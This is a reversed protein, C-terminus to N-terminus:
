SHSASNAAMISCLAANQAAIIAAQQAAIAMQASVAAAAGVTNGTDGLRYTSVIMSAHMLRINKSFGFFKGYGKQTILFDNVDKMDALIEEVTAPLMALVGLTALEYDTGYKLKNAKLVDFLAATREFKEDARGDCLALVHSLAQVANLSHFKEKAIKYIREIETITDANRESSFAFLLAYVVDEESTLFPHEKRMLDYIERARTAIDDFSSEEAEGSLITAALPLYNGSPFHNKLSAYANITSDLRKVPDEDISLMSVTVAKSAGRLYSFAGVKEKLLKHYNKITDVDAVAEKGTFISACVPHIYDNEGPFAAKIIDRNKIYRECISLLRSNM